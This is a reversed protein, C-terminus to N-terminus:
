LCMCLPTVSFTSTSCMCLLNLYVVCCVDELNSAIAWGSICPLCGGSWNQWSLVLAASSTELMVRAVSTHQGGDHATLPTSSSGERASRLTRSGISRSQTGSLAGYMAAMQRHTAALHVLRHLCWSCFFLCGCGTIFGTCCGNITQEQPQCVLPVPQLALNSIGALLCTVASQQSLQLRERAAELTRGATRSGQCSSATQM